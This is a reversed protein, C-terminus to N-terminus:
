APFLCTVAHEQYAYIFFIIFSISICILLITSVLLLWPFDKKDVSM